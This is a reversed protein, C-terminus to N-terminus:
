NAFVPKGDSGKIERAWMKKVSQVVSDPMPIYDLDLAMQDGKDYAWAFFGLAQKTAGADEPKKHMLIWTAATM